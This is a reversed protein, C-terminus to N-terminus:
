SLRGFSNQTPPRWNSGTLTPNAVSTSVKRHTSWNRCEAVQFCCRRDNMRPCRFWDSFIALHCQQVRVSSVPVRHTLRINSFVKFTLKPWAGTSVRHDYRHKSCPTSISIEWHETQEPIAWEKPIYLVFKEAKINNVASQEVRGMTPSHRNQTGM